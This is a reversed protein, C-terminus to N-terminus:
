MLYQDLDVNFKITEVLHLIVNSGPHTPLPKLIAYACQKEIKISEKNRTSVHYKLHEKYLKFM